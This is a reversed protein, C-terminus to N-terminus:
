PKFYNEHLSRYEAVYSCLFSKKTKVLIGVKLTMQLLFLKLNYLEKLIRQQYMEAYRSEGSSPDHQMKEVRFLQQSNRADM